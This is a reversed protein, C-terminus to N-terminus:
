RADAVNRYEIKVDSEDISRDYLYKLAQNRVSASVGGGPSKDIVILIVRSLESPEMRYTIAYVDNEYPLGAQKLLANGEEPNVMDLNEINGTSADSSIATSEPSDGSDKTALFIVSLALVGLIATVLVLRKSLFKM